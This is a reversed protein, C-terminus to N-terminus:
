LYPVLTGEILRYDSEIVENEIGFSVFRYQYRLFTDPDIFQTVVAGKRSTQNLLIYEKGEEIKKAPEDQAAAAIIGLCFIISLATINKRM